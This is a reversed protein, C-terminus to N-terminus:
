SRIFFTVTYQSHAQFANERFCDVKALRVGAKLFCIMVKIRFESKMLYMKELQTNKQM